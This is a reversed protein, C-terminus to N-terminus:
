NAGSLMKTWPATNRGAKQLRDLCIAENSVPRLLHNGCHDIAELKQMRSSCQLLIWSDKTAIFDADPQIVLAPGIPQKVAALLCTRLAANPECGVAQPIEQSSEDFSRQNDLCFTPFLEKENKMALILPDDVARGVHTLVLEYKIRSPVPWTRDVLPYGKLWPTVLDPASGTPPTAIKGGQALTSDIERGTKLNTIAPVLDLCVTGIKRPLINENFTVEAKITADGDEYRRVSGDAAKVIDAIDRLTADPALRLRIGYASLDADRLPIAPGVSRPVTEKAGVSEYFERYRYPSSPTAWFVQSNGAAPLASFDTQATNVAQRKVSFTLTVQDGAVIGMEGDVGTACSGPYMSSLGTDTDISSFTGERHVKRDLSALRDRKTLFLINFSTGPNALKELSFTPEADIIWAGEDLEQMRYNQPAGWTELTSRKAGVRSIRMPSGGFEIADGYVKKLAATPTMPAKASVFNVSMGGTPDFTTIAISEQLITKDIDSQEFSKGGVSVTLPDVEAWVKKNVLELVEVTNFGVFRVPIRIEPAVPDYAPIPIRCGQEAPRKSSSDVTADTRSLIGTDGGGYKKTVSQLSCLYASDIAGQQSGQPDKWRLTIRTGVLYGSVNSRNRLVVTSDIYGADAEITEAEDKVVKFLDERESRDLSSEEFEATSKNISTGKYSQGVTGHVQFAKGSTDIGLSANRKVEEEFSSGITAKTVTSHSLTAKFSHSSNVTTVSTKKRTVGIITDDTSAVVVPFGIVGNKFVSDVQTAAPKAQASALAPIMVFFWGASSLLKNM